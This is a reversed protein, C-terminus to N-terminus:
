QIALVLGKISVPLPPQEERFTATYNTGPRERGNLDLTPPNDVAVFNIRAVAPDSAAGGNDTVIFTVTRPLETPSYLRCM